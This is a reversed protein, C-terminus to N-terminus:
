GNNDNGKKQSNIIKKADKYAKNIEKNLAKSKKLCDNIEAMIKEYEKTM